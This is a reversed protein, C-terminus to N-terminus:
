FRVSATFSLVRPPDSININQVVGTTPVLAPQLPQRDFANAVLAQLTMMRKPGLKLRYSARLDVRNVSDQFYLRRQGNIVAYGQRVEGRYVWLGGVSIGDLFGRRFDYNTNLFVSRGANPSVYEGPRYVEVVGQNPAVFGLQHSSIPLGNVGTRVGATTLFLNNANLIAGSIPDLTAFYASGPDKMMALALPIRPSNPDTRVSPVLLDTVTGNASRVKVTVGDTNFQDNYVVGGFVSKTTKADNTAANLSITWNKTPKLTLVAELGRSAADTIASNGLNARGNIGSPNFQEILTTLVSLQEGQNKNDFAAISGSIRGEYVDAKLGVEYSRGKAVASQWNFNNTRVSPVGSFSHGYNAYMSWTQNPRWMAGLFGSPNVKDYLIEGYTPDVLKTADFRGGAMTEFRGGFWTGLWNVFAARSTRDKGLLDGGGIGGVGRPNTPTPPRVNFQTSDEWDYGAVGRQLIPYANQIPYVQPGYQQRGLAEPGPLPRGAADVAYLRQGVFKQVPNTYEAGLILDSKLVKPYEKRYVATARVSRIDWFNRARTPESRLSWQGAAARSDGPALLDTGNAGYIYDHYIEYAGAIRASWASGLAMEMSLNTTNDLFERGALGSTVSRYNKWTPTQGALLIGAANNEYLLRDLQLNNRPDRLSNDRVILTGGRQVASEQTNQHNLRVRINRNIAYAVEAFVGHTKAGLQDQWYRRDSEVAATRVALSGTSLNYDFTGRRTGLDDFQLTLEGFTRGQTAQKTVINMGGTSVGQGYLLAQAGRLFEIRDTSFTDLLTESVLGNRRREEKSILGRMRFNDPTGSGGQSSDTNLGVNPMITLAELMSTAALDKLLLETAVSMSMPLSKITRNTGTVGTTNHAEYTDRGDETVVFPTLEVPQDKTSQSATQADAATGVALWAALFSFLNRNKVPHSENHQPQSTQLQNPQATSSTGPPPDRSRAGSKAEGPRDNQGPNLAAGPAKPRPTAAIRFVGDREDRVYLTTGALMKKVAEGPLFEGSIANTRVGSAADSSFLVESGSQVSFVRLSKEALDAPVDFKRKEPEGASVWAATAMIGLWCALARVLVTRGAIRLHPPLQVPM